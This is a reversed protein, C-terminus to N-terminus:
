DMLTLQEVKAFIGRREGCSFYCAGLVTGNHMGEETDLEVGIWEGTAFKTLGVYCVIGSKGNWM